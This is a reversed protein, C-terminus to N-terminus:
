LCYVCMKPHPSCPAACRVQFPNSASNMTPKFVRSYTADDGQPVCAHTPPLPSRPLPLCLPPSISLGMPPSLLYLASRWPGALALSPTLLALALSATLTLHYPGHTSKSPASFDGVDVAGRSRPISHPSFSLLRLFPASTWTWGAWQEM